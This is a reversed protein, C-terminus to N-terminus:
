RFATRVVPSPLPAPKSITPTTIAITRPSSPPLTGPGPTTPPADAAVCSPCPASTARAKTYSPASLPQALIEDLVHQRVGTDLTSPSTELLWKELDRNGTDLNEDEPGRDVVGEHVFMQLPQGAPAGNRSLSFGRFGLRGFVGTPKERTLDHVTELQRTIYKDQDDTLTWTPNERGSFVHLTVKIAM